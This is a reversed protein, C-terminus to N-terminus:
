SSPEGGASVLLAKLQDKNVCVDDVCLKDEVKLTGVALNTIRTIAQTISVGLNTLYDLIAQLSIGAGTGSGGAGAELNAVRATLEELDIQLAQVASLTFTSLKYIDVGKESASLVELPAEEAILGMRLPADSGEFEYRYKAVRIEKLKGLIGDQEASGVYTIDKKFERSSINVFSTAAVDGMVHLKYEPTTTGIGINGSADVFLGEPFNNSLNLFLLIKGVGNEDKPSSEGFPELAIGVVRGSATAKM